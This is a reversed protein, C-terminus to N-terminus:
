LSSGIFLCLLKNGIKMLEWRRQWTLSVTADPYYLTTTETYSRISKCHSKITIQVKCDNESRAKKGVMMEFKTVQKAGIDPNQRHEKRAPVAASPGGGVAAAQREFMGTQPSHRSCAFCLTWKHPHTLASHFCLQFNWVPAEPRAVTCRAWTLFSRTSPASAPNTFSCIIRNRKMDTCVSYKQMKKVNIVKLLSCLNLLIVLLHICVKRKYTYWIIAFASKFFFPSSCDTFSLFTQIM